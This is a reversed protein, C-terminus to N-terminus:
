ISYRNVSKNMLEVMSETETVVSVNQALLKM